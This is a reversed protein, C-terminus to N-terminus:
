RMVRRSRLHSTAGYILSMVVAYILVQEVIEDAWYLSALPTNTITVGRVYDLAPPIELVAILFDVITYLFLFPFRRYGGRLLAAIILLELPLGIAWGAIQLAFRM